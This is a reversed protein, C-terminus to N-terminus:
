PGTRRSPSPGLSVCQREGPRVPYGGKIWNLLGGNMVAARTHGYYRLLWWLRSAKSGDSDDYAVVQIEPTIGWDGFRRRLTEHEPLPHRGTQPTVKGALDINQHAYVAGPIHNELYQDHGWEPHDMDFRCDVIVWGSCDLNAVLELNSILTSFIM